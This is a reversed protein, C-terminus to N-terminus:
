TMGRWSVTRRLALNWGCATTSTRKAVAVGQLMPPKDVIGLYVAWVHTIMGWLGGLLRFSVELGSLHLPVRFGLLREAGLGLTHGLVDRHNGGTGMQTPSTECLKYALGVLTCVGCGDQWVGCWAMYRRPALGGHPKRLSVLHSGFHQLHSVYAECLVLM